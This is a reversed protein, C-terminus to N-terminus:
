SEPKEAREIWRWLWTCLAATPSLATTCRFTVKIIMDFPTLGSSFCNVTCVGSFFSCRFEIRFYGPPISLHRWRFHAQHFAGLRSSIARYWKIIDFKGWNKTQTLVRKNSEWKWLAPSAVQSNFNLQLSWEFQHFTKLCQWVAVVKQHLVSRKWHEKKSFLKLIWRKLSVPSQSSLLMEFHMLNWGPM